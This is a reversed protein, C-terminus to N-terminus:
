APSLADLGAAIIERLVDARDRGNRLADVRDLIAQPIRVDVKPGISPRGGLNPGAEDELEGFYKEVADHHKETLLWQKAADDDVFWYKPTSGQWQDWDCRVWRGGKTRYLEAHVRTDEWMENDAANLFKEASAPDFHGAYQPGEYEDYRYVNTRTM